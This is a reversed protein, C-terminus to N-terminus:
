SVTSYRLLSAHHYMELDSWVVVTKDARLGLIALEDGVRELSRVVDSARCRSLASIERVTLGCRVFRSVHFDFPAM